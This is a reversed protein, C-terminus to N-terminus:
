KKEIKGRSTILTRDSPPDNNNNNNNNNNLNRGVQTIFSHKLSGLGPEHSRPGGRM